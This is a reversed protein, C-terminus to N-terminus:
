GGRQTPRGRFIKDIEELCREKPLTTLHGFRGSPNLVKDPSIGSYIAEEAIILLREIEKNMEKRVM